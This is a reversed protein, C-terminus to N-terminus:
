GGWEDGFILEGLQNFGSLPEDIPLDVGVLEAKPNCKDIIRMMFDRSPEAEEGNPDGKMGARYLRVMIHASYNVDGFGRREFEGTKRSRTQGEATYNEWGEKLKHIMVFNCPSFTAINLTHLFKANLKSYQTPIVQTLKGFEALRALEWVETATDWVPTGGSSIIDKYDSEFETYLRRAEDKTHNVENSTSGMEDKVLDLDYDKVKIDLGEDAALKLVSESARDFRQLYVPKGTRAAGIGFGTKGSGEVAEVSVIMRTPITVKDLPKFGITRTATLAM